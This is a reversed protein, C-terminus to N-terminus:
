MQQTSNGNWTANDDDNDRRLRQINNRPSSDNQLNRRRVTDDRSNSQNSYPSTTTQNSQNENSNNISNNNGSFLSAIWSFIAFIPALVFMLFSMPNLSTSSQNSTSSKSRGHSVIICANPVLGLERFSKVADESNFEHKPFATTLRINAIQVHDKVFAEAVLFKAEANFTNSVSSGDPLRFQLRAITSDVKKKEVQTKADAETKQRLIEEKEKKETDYKMTKELRDRRIQERVKERAAKEEAKRDAIEKALQSAQREAASRQAIQLERGTEIRKKEIEKLKQKEEAEKKLKVKERLMEIQVKEQSSLEGEVDDTELSTEHTNSVSEVNTNEVNESIQTASNSAQEVGGTAPNEALVTILTKDVADTLRKLFEEKELVGPIIDTPTGQNNILYTSPVCLIPYIAGFQQGPVSDATINIAVCKEECCVEAVKDDNWMEEMTKSNEKDDKVFVIFVKKEGIAKQIAHGVDGTFWNM